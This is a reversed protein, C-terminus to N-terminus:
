YDGLAGSIEFKRLKGESVSSEQSSVLKVNAFFISEDLNQILNSVVFDDLAFGNIKIAYNEKVMLETLWAQQPVTKHLADMAKVVKLREKSINRIVDIRKELKDKEQQFKKVSDAKPGFTQLKKELSVKE